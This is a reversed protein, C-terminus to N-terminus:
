LQLVICIILTNSSPTSAVSDDYIGGFAMNSYSIVEGTNADIFATIGHVNGPYAEDLLMRIDWYPRLEYDVPVTVLIAEINEKSVKFDKVISGDPMDYSYFKLNEIAITIAQEKSINVATDGITFLPRDDGFSLFVGIKDFTLHIGTYEVGNIVQMWTFSVQDVGVFYFNHITLKINETTITSDKTIDINDLMALLNSSDIKTYVQYRELFDKAADLPNAYQKNTIIQGQLPTIQCATMVDKEFTFSIHLNSDKSTLEYLLNNIIRNDDKALPVGYMTSDNVLNISYRSLDVPLMNEMFALAKDQNITQGTVPTM